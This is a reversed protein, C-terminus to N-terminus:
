SIQVNVEAPNTWFHNKTLRYLRSERFVSKEKDKVDEIVGTLALKQCLTQVQHRKVTKPLITNLHVLLCDVAKSGQFCNTYTRLSQTHRGCKISEELHSVIKEWLVTAKFVGEEDVINCGIVAMQQPM